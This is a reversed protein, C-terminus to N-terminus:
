GEALIEILLRNLSDLGTLFGCDPGQHVTTQSPNTKSAFTTHAFDIMRVDVQPSITPRPRMRRNMSKPVTLNHSTQIDKVRPRKTNNLATTTHLMDEDEEDEELEEGAEDIRLQHRNRKTNINCTEFDSSIDDASSTANIQCSYEDSSSNSLLMWSDESVPSSTAISPITPDSDLFVTEESIPFFASTTKAGRAAAEGFGRQHSDQSVEDHNMTLNFDASSNSIDADYCCAESSEDEPELTRNESICFAAQYELDSRQRPIVEHGEYVM